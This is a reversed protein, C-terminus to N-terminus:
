KIAEVYLSMWPHTGDFLPVERIPSYRSQMFASRYQTKFGVKKLIKILLDGSYASLHYLGTEDQDFDHNNLYEILKEDDINNDEIMNKFKSYEDAKNFKENKSFRCRRDSLLHLSHDWITIKDNKFNDFYPNLFQFFEIDKNRTRDIILSADPVVIRLYGGNKLSNYMAKIIRTSIDIHFHELTHSTYIAELNSFPLNNPDKSLDIHVLSPDNSIFNPLFDASSWYRSKFYPGAGINVRKKYEDKSDRYLSSFDFMRSHLRRPWPYHRFKNKIFSRVLHTIWLKIKYM